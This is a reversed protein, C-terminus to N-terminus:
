FGARLGVVVRGYRGRRIFGRLAPEPSEAELFWSVAGFEDALARRHAPTTGGRSLHVVHLEAGRRAALAAAEALVARPRPEDVPLCALVKM